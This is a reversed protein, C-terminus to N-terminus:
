RHEDVWHRTWDAPARLALRPGSYRMVRRIEERMTPQYCHTECKRCTPKEEGYMCHSLRRHSYDLLESCSECLSGALTGHRGSCYYGIMREVTKKEKEIKPGVSGNKKESM